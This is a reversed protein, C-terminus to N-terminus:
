AEVQGDRWNRECCCKRQAHYYVTSHHIKLISAIETVSLDLDWLRLIQLHRRYAGQATNKM